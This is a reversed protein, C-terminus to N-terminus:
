PIRMQLNFHNNSSECTVYGSYVWGVSDSNFSGKTYKYRVKFEKKKKFTTIPVTMKYKGPAIDGNAATHDCHTNRRWTNKGKLQFWCQHLYATENSDNYVIITPQCAMAVGAPVSLALAIVPISLSKWKM